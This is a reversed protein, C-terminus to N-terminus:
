LMEFRTSNENRNPESWTYTRYVKRVECDVCWSYDPDVPVGVLDVGPSTSGCPCGGETAGDVASVCYLAGFVATTAEPNICEVWDGVGIDTMPNAGMREHEAKVADLYAFQQECTEMTSYIAFEAASLHVSKLKGNAGMIAANVAADKSGYERALETLRAASEPKLWFTSKREGSATRKAHYRASPSTV